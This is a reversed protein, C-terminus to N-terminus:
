PIDLERKLEDHDIFRGQRAEERAETLGGDSDDDLKEDDLPATLLARLVPDETARLGALVRAAVQLDSDALEEILRHLEERAHMPL